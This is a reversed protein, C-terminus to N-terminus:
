GIEAEGYRDGLLFIPGLTKSLILLIRSARRQRQANASKEFWGGRGGSRDGDSYSRRNAQHPDGGVTRLFGRVVHIILHPRPTRM